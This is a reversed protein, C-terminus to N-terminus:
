KLEWNDRYRHFIARECRRQEAREETWANPVECKEPALWMKGPQHPEGNVRPVRFDVDLNLQAAKEAEKIPLVYCRYESPSRVAVFVVYQARFIGKKRNFVQATGYMQEKNCQGYNIWWPEWNGKNDKGNTAGKVQIQWAKEEKLAILDVNASIGDKNLDTARYGRAELENLVIREAIKGVNTKGIKVDVM